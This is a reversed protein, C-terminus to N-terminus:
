CREDNKRKVHLIIEKSKVQPYFLLRHNLSSERDIVKLENVNKCEVNKQCEEGNFNPLKKKKSKVLKREVVKVPIKNVNKCEKEHM